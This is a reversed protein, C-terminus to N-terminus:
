RLIVILHHQSYPIMSETPPASVIISETCASLMMSEAPLASFIISETHASLIRSEAGGSICGAFVCARHTSLTNHRLIAFLYCFCYYERTKVVYVKHAAHQSITTQPPALPLAGHRGWPSPPWWSQPTNNKGLKGRALRKDLAGWSWFWGFIM